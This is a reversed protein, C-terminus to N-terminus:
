FISLLNNQAAPRIGSSPQPTEPEPDSQEYADEFQFEQLIFQKVEDFLQKKKNEKYVRRGLEYIEEDKQKVVIPKVQKRKVIPRKKVIVAEEEEAEDDGESIEDDEPEEQEPEIPAAKKSKQKKPESKAPAAKEMEKKKALAERMKRMHEMREKTMVKRKDVVPEM